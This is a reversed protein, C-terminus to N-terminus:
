AAKYFVVSGEDEVYRCHKFARWLAVPVPTEDRLYYAGLAKKLYPTAEVAHYRGAPLPPSPAIPSM